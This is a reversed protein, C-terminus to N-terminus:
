LAKGNVVAITESDFEILTDALHGRDLWEVTMIFNNVVHTQGQYEIEVVDHHRVTRLVDTVYEPLPLAFRRRKTSVQHTPFNYGSLQEVQRTLPYDAKGITASFYIFNTFFNDYNILSEATLLDTTHRFSIKILDDINTCQQFTESYYVESSNNSIVLQYMGLPIVQTLLAKAPYYLLSFGDYNQSRLGAIFMEDKIDTIAGTSKNILEVNQAQFNVSTKIQFPPVQNQNILLPWSEGSINQPINEFLNREDKVFHLISYNSYLM